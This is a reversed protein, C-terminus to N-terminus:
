ETGQVVGKGASQGDGIQVSDTANYPALNNLLQVESTMHNTAGSDALWYQPTNNSSSSAFMAVGQQQFGQSANQFQQSPQTQMTQMPQLQPASQQQQGPFGFIYYCRDATHNPKGCYQCGTINLNGPQSTQFNPLSRCTKAGHGPKGCLQCTLGTGGGNPRFFTNHFGTNGRNMGNQFNSNGRYGGTNNNFRANNNGFPGTPRGAYFGTMSQSPDTMSFSNIQPIGGYPIAPISTYPAQSSLHINNNAPTTLLPGFGPPVTPVQSQLSSSSAGNTNDVAPVSSTNKAIMATLSSTSSSTQVESEIDIEAAKLLTKLEGVSCAVFQARIVTKIAAYESPLGRLVTVVIDEDDVFVGVTELADRAAKIKDMYTEIDDGGKRLNQLNSKLQLINQRNPAAFKLKLRNWM